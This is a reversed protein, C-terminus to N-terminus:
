EAEDQRRPRTDGFKDKWEGTFIGAAVITTVLAGWLFVALDLNM